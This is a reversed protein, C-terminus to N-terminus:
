KHKFYFIVGTMATIIVLTHAAPGLLSMYSLPNYWSIIYPGQICIHLVTLWISLFIIDKPKRLYFYSSQRFFLPLYFSYSGTQCIYCLRGSLVKSARKGTILRISVRSIHQYALVISYQVSSIHLTIPTISVRSIHQYALVISYQVSSIHLTTPTISVRSIHQYAFM